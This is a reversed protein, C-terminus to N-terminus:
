YVPRPNGSPDISIGVIEGEDNIGLAASAVDGALTGLDATAKRIIHRVETSV